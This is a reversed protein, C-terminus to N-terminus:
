VRIVPQGVSSLTCIQGGWTGPAFSLPAWHRGLNGTPGLGLSLAALCSLLWCPQLATVSGGLFPVPLSGLHDPFSTPRLLM